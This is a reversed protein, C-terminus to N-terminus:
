SKKLTQQVLIQKTLDALLEPTPAAFSMGTMLLLAGGLVFSKKMAIPSLVIFPYYIFLTILMRIICKEYM